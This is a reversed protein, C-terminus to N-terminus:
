QAIARTNPPLASPCLRLTGGEYLKGEPPFVHLSSSPTLSDCSILSDLPATPCCHSSDPSPLTCWLLPLLFFLCWGSQSCPVLGRRLPRVLAFAPHTLLHGSSHPFSHCCSLSSTAPGFKPNPSCRSGSHTRLLATVSDHIDPNRTLVM